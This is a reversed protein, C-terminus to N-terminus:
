SGNPQPGDGSDEWYMDEPPDRDDCDLERDHPGRSYDIPYPDSTLGGPISGGSRSGRGMGPRAHRKYIDDIAEERDQRPGKGWRDDPTYEIPEEWPKRGM